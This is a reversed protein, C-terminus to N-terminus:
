LRVHVILLVAFQKESYESFFVNTNHIYEPPIVLSPEPVIGMPDVMLAYQEMLEFFAVAFHLLLRAGSARSAAVVISRLVRRQCQAACPSSSQMCRTSNPWVRMIIFTDPVPTHAHFYAAKTWHHLHVLMM